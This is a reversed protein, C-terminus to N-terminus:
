EEGLSVEIADLLRAFGDPAAAVSSRSIVNGTEHQERAVNVVTYSVQAGKPTATVRYEGRYWWDGQMVATFADPYVAFRTHGDTPTIRPVLHGFIEPPPAAIERELELLVTHPTPRVLPASKEHATQDTM